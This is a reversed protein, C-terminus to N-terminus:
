GNLNWRKISIFQSIFKLIESNIGWFTMAKLDEHCKSQNDEKLHSPNEVYGLVYSKIWALPTNLKYWFL